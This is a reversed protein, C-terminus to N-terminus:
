KKGGLMAEAFSEIVNKGEAAIGSVIFTRIVTTFLELIDADERLIGLGRLKELQTTFGALLSAPVQVPVEVFPGEVWDKPRSSAMFVGQLFTASDM